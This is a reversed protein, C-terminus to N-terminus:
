ASARAAVGAPQAVSSYGFGPSQLARVPECASLTDPREHIEQPVGTQPDPVRHRKRPLLQGAILQHEVGLFRALGDEDGQRFRNDLLQAGLIGQACIKEPRPVPQRFRRHGVPLSGKCLQKLKGSDLAVGM